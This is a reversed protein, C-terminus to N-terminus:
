RIPGTVRAIVPPVSGDPLIVVFLRDGYVVRALGIRDATSLAETVADRGDVVEAMRLYHKSIQGSPGNIWFTVDAGRRLVDLLEDRLPGDAAAGLKNHLREQVGPQSPAAKAAESCLSTIGVPM